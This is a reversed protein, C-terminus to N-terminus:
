DELGALVGEDLAFRDQGLDAVPRAPHGAHRALQGIGPDVDDAVQEQAAPAVPRHEREDHVIGVLGARDELALGLGSAGPGGAGVGRLIAMRRSRIIVATSAWAAPSGPRTIVPPTSSTGPAVISSLIAWRRSWASSRRLSISRSGRPYGADLQLKIRGGVM